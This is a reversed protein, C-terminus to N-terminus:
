MMDKIVLHTNELETESESSEGEKLPPTDSSSDSSSDQEDAIASGVGMTLQRKAIHLEKTFQRSVSVVDM